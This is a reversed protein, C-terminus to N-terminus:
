EAGLVELAAQIGASDVAVGARELRHRAFVHSLREEELLLLAERLGFLLYAAEAALRDAVVAPDIGRRWDGPM